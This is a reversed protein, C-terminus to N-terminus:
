LPHPHPLLIKKFSVYNRKGHARAYNSPSNEHDPNEESYEFKWPNKGKVGRRFRQMASLIAFRSQM